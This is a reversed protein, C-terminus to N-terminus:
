HHHDDHKTEVEVEPPMIGLEEFTTTYNRLARMASDNSIEFKVGEHVIQNRVRHADWAANVNKFGKSEAYKLLEAVTDGIYNNRKLLDRLITDLEIIGIKWEERYQSTIHKKSREFREWLPDSHTTKKKQPKSKNAFMHELEHVHHDFKKMHYWFLYFLYSLYLGLLIELGYIFSLFNKATEENLFAVVVVVAGVIIFLLIYGAIKLYQSLTLSKAEGEGEKKKDDHAHDAM